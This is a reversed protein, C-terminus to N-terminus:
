ATQSADGSRSPAVCLAAIYGAGVDLPVVEAMTQVRERWVRGITDIDLTTLDVRIGEGTMKVYAEKRTWRALLFPMQKPPELQALQTAENESFLRRAIQAISVDRELSEIDVGVRWGNEATAVLLVDATHSLNFDCCGPVFPRGLPDTQIVVSEPGCNM